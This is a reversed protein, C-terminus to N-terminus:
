IWKKVGWVLAVLCPVGVFGAIILIASTYTVPEITFTDFYCWITFNNTITLNHPNVNYSYGNCIFNKFIYSENQTLASLEIVEFNVYNNSSGNSKTVCDVRFIGGENFYFTVTYGTTILYQIGTNNWNNDSNNCWWCFEIKIGIEAYLIKTENAWDSVGSLSTWTENIWSGSNNTGFIYGSLAVEDEWKCIFKCSSNAITTNTEINSYTPYIPPEEEEYTCYISYKRNEHTPVLPNPFTNYNKNQYHGQNTDGTDYFCMILPFIGGSIYGWVVLIYDIDEELTPSTSFTFTVWQEASGWNTKEETVGNTLLSLDSHKYLACKAKATTADPNYALYVTISQALGNSPCTFVSGTIRNHINESSSGITQYGFVPDIVFNKGEQVNDKRIRFWFYSKGEILKIGHSIILTPIDKIDSWDFFITYNGYSIIYKWNNEKYTYNKVNLNIGFTLRYDAFYPSTFNLTIKCTTALSKDVPVYSENILVTYNKIIQLSSKSSIWGSGNNYELNWDSYSNFLHWFYTWNILAISSVNNNGFNYVVDGDVIFKESAEIQLPFFQFTLILLLFLSLCLFKKNMLM